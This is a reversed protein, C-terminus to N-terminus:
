PRLIGSLHSLENKVEICKLFLKKHAQFMSLTLSSVVSSYYFLNLLTTSKLVFVMNVLFFTIFSSMKKNLLVAKERTCGPASYLNFPMLFLAEPYRGELQVKTDGLFPM